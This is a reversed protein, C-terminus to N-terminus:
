TCAAVTHVPLIVRPKTVPQLKAVAQASTPANDDESESAEGEVIVPSKESSSM